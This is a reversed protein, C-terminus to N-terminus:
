VEQWFGGRPVGIRYNYRPVPTFNCVVLILEDSSKGKRIFSIISQEWNHFDIWEFGEINFDQEHLSPESRYLHNLDRVWRQVGHHLPYRLV